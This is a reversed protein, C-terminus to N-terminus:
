RSELGLDTTFINKLIPNRMKLRLHPNKHM